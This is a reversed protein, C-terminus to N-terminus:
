NDEMSYYIEKIGCSIINELNEKTSIRMDVLECEEFFSIVYFDTNNSPRTIDFYSSEEKGEMDYTVQDVKPTLNTVLKFGNVILNKM